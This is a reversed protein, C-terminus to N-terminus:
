ALGSVVEAKQRRSEAKGQHGTLEVRHHDAGPRVTERSRDNESALPESDLNELRVLVDAASRTSGLQGQRSKTVVDTRGDMRHRLRRREELGERQRLVTQLPQLRRIRDSMREIVPTGRNQLKGDVLSRLAQIAVAIRIALQHRRERAVCASEKVLDQTGDAQKRPM